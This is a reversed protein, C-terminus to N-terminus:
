AGLQHGHGRVYQPSPARWSVLALLALAAIPLAGPHLPGPGAAAAGVAAWSGLGFLAVVSALTVALTARGHSEAVSAALALAPVLLLLDYPQAYPAVVLSVAAGAAVILRADVIGRARGAGAALLGAVLIAVGAGGPVDAFLAATTSWAIGTKQASGGAIATLAAPHIALGLLSTGAVAAVSWALDRWRRRYALWVAVAPALVLFLHAKLTLLLAGAALAAARREDLSRAVLALGLLLLGVFHGFRIDTIFPHSAFIAGLLVARAPLSRPGLQIVCALCGAVLTLVVFADLLPLGVSPDLAGFPAFLWATQPPYLWACVADFGGRCNGAVNAAAAGFDAARRWEEPDYPSRGTAALHGAYWFQFTDGEGAVPRATPWLIALVLLAPAVTLLAAAVTGKM